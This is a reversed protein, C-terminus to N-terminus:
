NPLKEKLAIQENVWFEIWNIESLSGSEDNSEALLELSKAHEGLESFGFTEANGKIQHAIFRIQEFDSSQLANKLVSLDKQRRDIYKQIAEKSIHFSM